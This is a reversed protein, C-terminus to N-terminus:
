SAIALDKGYAGPVVSMSTVPPAGGFPHLGGWGDMTYGEGYQSNTTNFGPVLVVGRAIDWGYWYSPSNPGSSPISAPVASQTTGFPHLGGYGDMVYGGTGAADLAFRHAIDWGSWYAGVAVINPAMDGPVGFPHVGGYGDLVYGSQGDPALQADRAIDWGQWYGSINVNPAVDGSTGFPHLSGWGDLVWGSHGDPRLIIARAIDWGVWYGTTTTITPANGFAHIGGFADLIYGGAGGSELAVGRAIDWNNWLAGNPMPPSSAGHLNGMGDVGYMASFPFGATATNSVTTTTGNAAFNVIDGDPQVVFTYSDGKLGVFNVTSSHGSTLTGGVHTYPTFPTGKTTDQAWLTAGRMAPSNTALTWTVPFQTTSQTGGTPATVTVSATLTGNSWANCHFQPCAGPVMAVTNPIAFVRVGWASYSSQVEQDIAIADLGGLGLDGVTVPARGGWSLVGQAQMVLAGQGSWADLDGGNALWIGNSADNIPAITPYSSDTGNLGNIPFGSMPAGGGAADYAYLSHGNTMDVIERHGNGLLDGVAPTDFVQGNQPTPFGPQSHGSADWLNTYQGAGGGFFFGTGETILTTGNNNMDAAVTSSWPTENFTQPWGAVRCSNSPYQYGGGCGSPRIAEVEGGKPTPSTPPGSSDMGFVVDLQGTGELDVLTPTDWVTDWTNVPWGALMHGGSDWALVQQDWSSAVLELRGDGFLDGVAVSGFIGPLLNKARPVTHVPFGPVVSGDGNFVYVYGAENAVIIEERGNHYLDAVTPNSQIVGHTYQPWGPLTNGHNDLVQVAGDLWAVVIEKQGNGNLDAITAGAYPVNGGAQNGPASNGNTQHAVGWLEQPTQPAPAAHSVTAPVVAGLAALATAATLVLLKLRVRPVSRRAAM